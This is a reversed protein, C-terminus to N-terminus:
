TSEPTLRLGAAAASASSPAILEGRKQRASILENVQLTHLKTESFNVKETMERVLQDKYSNNHLMQTITEEAVALQECMEEVQAELRSSHAQQRASEEQERQLRLDRESLEARLGQALQQAARCDRQWVWLEEQLQELRASSERAALRQEQRAAEAEAELDFVKQLKATLANTVESIQGRKEANAAELEEVRAQWRRVEGRLEGNEREHGAEEQRRRMSDHVMQIAQAGLQLAPVDGMAPDVASM